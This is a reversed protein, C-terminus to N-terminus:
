YSLARRRGRRDRSRGSGKKFKDRPTTRRNTFDELGLALYEFASRYHSTWDHKPKVTKLTELGEQRVKPYASQEICSAFYDTRDNKNVNVGERIVQKVARKRNQFPKWSENFNVVIGHERLVSLVTADNVQNRNKGAPDGFHIGRKWHRHSEILELDYKTYRYNLHEESPIVGTVFPVFFDINEGNKTYTDIINLEGDQPQAWIM